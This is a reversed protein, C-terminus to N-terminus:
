RARQVEGGKRLKLDIMGDSGDRGRVKGKREKRM